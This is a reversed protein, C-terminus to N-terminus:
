ENRFNINYCNSYLPGLSPPFLRYAVSESLTLRPLIAAVALYVGGAFGGGPGYHGHVILYLGFMAIFPVLAASVVRVVVSPHAGIM